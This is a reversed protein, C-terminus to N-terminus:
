VLAVLNCFSFLCDMRVMPELRIVHQQLQSSWMRGHVTTHRCQFLLGVSVSMLVHLLLAIQGQLISIPCPGKGRVRVPFSVESLPVANRLFPRGMTDERGFTDELSPTRGSREGIVPPTGDQRPRPGASPAETSSSLRSSSPSVHKNKHLRKWQSSVNLM